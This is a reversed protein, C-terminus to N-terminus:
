KLLAIIIIIKLVIITILLYAASVHKHMTHQHMTTSLCYKMSQLCYGLDIIISVQINHMCGVPHEDNLRYDIIVCSVMSGGM